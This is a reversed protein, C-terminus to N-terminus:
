KTSEFNIYDGVLVWQGNKVQAIRSGEIATHDTKSLNIPGLSLSARWDRMSEAAAILSQPTLDRGARKFMEVALEAATQAYLSNGGWQMEPLRKQMFAIHAQVAPDSEDVKLYGNALVGEMVDAGALKITQPDTNVESIIWQPTFGQQKAFKIASATFPPLTVAYVVDVGANKLNLVQANLNTTTVEYSEEPGVRAASGVAAKFSTLSDKGFDDNQYLVGVKKGAFNQAIYQGTIKGAVNYPLQFCFVTPQAPQCWKDAGTSPFLDIVGKEKIYDVVASHPGTGLGLM